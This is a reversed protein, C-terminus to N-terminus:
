ATVEVTAREVAWRALDNGQVTWKNTQLWTWGDGEIWYHDGLFSRPVLGAAIVEDPNTVDGVWAYVTRGRQAIIPPDDLRIRMGFLHVVDGIRLETTNLNLM